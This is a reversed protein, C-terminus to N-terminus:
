STAERRRARPLAAFGVAGLGATAAIAVFTPMAGPPAEPLVLWGTELASGALALTAFAALARRSDRVGPFLLLFAPVDHLLTVAPFLPSWVGTTRRLYWAAAAPLNTSWAVVYPMFACYGWFLLAVLLLAGLPGPSGPDTALHALLLVSLATLSQISLVYLGFGSSHFAPDLSMLWDFAVFTHLPVFAVLGAIAFARGPLFALASGLVLFAVARILWGVPTLWAARFPTELSAGVWPYLTALGFAIPLGALAVLPLLRALPAAGPAVAARWPGPVIRTLLLLFLAGIPVGACFATAALWGFLAGPVLLTTVVALATLLLGTALIV